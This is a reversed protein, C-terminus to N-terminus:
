FSFFFSQLLSIQSEEEKIPQHSSFHTRRKQNKSEKGSKRSKKWGDRALLPKTYLAARKQKYKEIAKRKKIQEGSQESLYFSKGKKRLKPHIPKISHVSPRFPVSKLM